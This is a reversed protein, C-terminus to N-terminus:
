VDPRSHLTENISVTQRIALFGKRRRRNTFYPSRNIYADPAHIPNNGNGVHVAQYAIYLFLPESTNHSEILQIAEDTYKETSFFAEKIVNRGRSFALVKFEGFYLPNFHDANDWGLLSLPLRVWPYLYKSRFFGLHWKGVIHTAYDLRKLHQGMETFKFSTGMTRCGSYCVHLATSSEHNNLVIPSAAM